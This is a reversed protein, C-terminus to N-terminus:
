QFPAYGGVIRILTKGGFVLMIPIVIGRKVTLINLYHSVAMLHVEPPLLNYDPHDVM